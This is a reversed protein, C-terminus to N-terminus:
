VPIKAIAVLFHTNFVKMGELLCCLGRSIPALRRTIPPALTILQFTLQCKPFLRRIEAPRIGHTQSNTPNLWFDYSLILGGPKLVRLMDSCIKQRLEPNLISSLATYQLVLDFVAAPFPLFAGNANTFNSGPLRCYAYRLADFLIDIGNLNKPLAGFTLFEAMVGGRGCGMELIHLDSLSAIDHRKLIKLVARQREQIAFLNASNFWSYLDSNSLRLRRNEYERRLRSLDDLAKM